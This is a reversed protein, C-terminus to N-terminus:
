DNNDGEDEYNREQEDEEGHTNYDEREYNEPQREEVRESEEEPSEEGMMPYDREADKRNGMFEEKSDKTNEQMDYENSAEEEVTIESDANKNSETCNISLFIFPLLILLAIWFKKM